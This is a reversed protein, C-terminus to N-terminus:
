DFLARLITYTCSSIIVLFTWITVFRCTDIVLRINIIHFCYRITNLYACILRSLNLYLVNHQDVHATFPLLNGSSSDGVWVASMRCINTFDKSLFFLCLPLLVKPRL